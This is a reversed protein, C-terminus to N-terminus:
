IATWRRCVSSKVCVVNGCVVSADEKNTRLNKWYQCRSFNNLSHLKHFEKGDDTTVNFLWDLLLHQIRRFHLSISCPMYHRNQRCSRGKERFAPRDWEQCDRFLGVRREIHQLCRARSEVSDTRGAVSVANRQPDNRKQPSTRPVCTQSTATEKLSTHLLTCKLIINM